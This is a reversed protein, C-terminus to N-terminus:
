LKKEQLTMIFVPNQGMMMHYNGIQRSKGVSVQVIEQFSFPREKIFNMVEAVTEMAICNIVIRVAPNKKLLSNLIEKMNGGSGGIFVHTPAPLKELADPACGSVVELNSVALRKKNQKLLDLADDKKEIAYVIGESAQIACELGISGTGAGVDYVVANKTLALKSLSISRIEEKTMPANGREFVFDPLGHTVVQANAQKNEIVAVCLGEKSFELFDEPTGETVSEEPYGLQCGVFLKVSFFGHELLNKSLQRISEGYGALVFVKEYNKVAALLNQERGHLSVLKMDEWSVALKSAMYVVSSIGCLVETEVPLSRLQELLKKCGSYFGVDGSFAAVIRKKEPHDKLYNVIRDAQYITETEKGFCRLSETLRASGLIVDAEECAQRGEITLDNLSGMGIGLLTVKRRQTQEIHLHRLLGFLDYGSEELPRCVVVTKVGALRAGELKELFGGASATDKTVMYKIHYQEMLAANLKASFPGQMCLIQKGCLGMERCQDVMKGDPLIRVYIRSIDEILAVYKSLEKSGTTLFINGETRNLTKAAEEISSVYLEGFDEETRERGRLLRLVELDQKKAAQKINESVEVAYPHTADIVADWKKQRLLLEMEEIGLRGRHVEMQPHASLVEEGYPTAVCIDVHDGHDLLQEALARGESTGGFILYQKM